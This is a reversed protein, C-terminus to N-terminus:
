FKVVTNIRIIWLLILVKCCYYDENDVIIDPICDKHFTNSYRMCKLYHKGSMECFIHCNNEMLWTNSMELVEQMSVANGNCAVGASCWWEQLCEDVSGNSVIEGDTGPMYEYDPDSYGVISTQSSCDNYGTM